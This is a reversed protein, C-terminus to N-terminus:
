IAVQMSEMSTFFPLQSLIPTGDVLVGPLAMSGTQNGFLNKLAFLALDVRDRAGVKLFLRSLYVKVTGETISLQYAIEKNKLGQALLGILQRERRTLAIRKSCILKDSLAKEVWFGGAAVERLCATHLDIPLAKRLIGRIGLAIAQSAFENSIADVWLVISASGGLEKLESLVDLTVSLNLDVLIVGFVRLRAHEVLAPLTTCVESVSFDASPLIAHLGATLVPQNSYLLVQTM